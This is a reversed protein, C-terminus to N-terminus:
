QGGERLTPELPKKSKLEGDLYGSVSETLAKAADPTFPSVREVEYGGYKWAGATPLYGLWGNSYGFYFTYNFPSRDRIENAIECFLELPASWIAIDENIKLFRVPLHVMHIGTNTTSTYDGLDTPWGLDPKRPTKITLAGSVM